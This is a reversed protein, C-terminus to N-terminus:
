HLSAKRSATFFLQDYPCCVHQNHIQENDTMDVELIFM